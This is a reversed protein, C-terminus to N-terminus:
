NASAIPFSGRSVPCNAWGFRRCVRCSGDPQRVKDIQQTDADLKEQDQKIAIYQQRLAEKQGQAVQQDVKDKMAAVRKQAELLAALRM